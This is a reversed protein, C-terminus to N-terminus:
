IQFTWVELTVIRFDGSSSIPTRNSFTECSGSHGYELNQDLWLAFDGGGGVGIGEAKSLQFMHNKRSWKWVNFFPYLKMIFIEAGGYFQPHLKWPQPLFAGFVHKKDDMVFMLLPDNRKLKKCKILLTSLSYGDIATHFLIKWNKGMCRSPLERVIKDIHEEIIISELRRVNSGTTGLKEVPENQPGLLQPRLASNVTGNAAVRRPSMTTRTTLRQGYNREEDNEETHPSLLSQTEDESSARDTRSLRQVAGIGLWSAVSNRVMLVFMDVFARLHTSYLRDLQAIWASAVYRVHVARSPYYRSFLRWGIVGAFGFLFLALLVDYSRQHTRGSIEHKEWDRQIPVQGDGTTSSPVTEENTGIDNPLGEQTSSGPDKMTTTDKKDGDGGQADNEDKDVTPHRKEESDDKYPVPGEPGEEFARPLVVPLAATLLLLGLALLTFSSGCKKAPRKALKNHKYLM